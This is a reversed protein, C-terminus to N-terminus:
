LTARDLHRRPASTTTALVEAAPPRSRAGLRQSSRVSRCVWRAPHALSARYLQYHYADRRAAFASPAPGGPLVHAGDGHSSQTTAPGGPRLGSRFSVS